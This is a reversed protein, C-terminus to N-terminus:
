QEAEQDRITGIVETVCSEVAFDLSSCDLFNDCAILFMGGDFLVIAVVSEDKHCYDAEYYYEVNVRDGEYIEKGNKDCLGTFQGVIAPDVEYSPFFWRKNDPDDRWEVDQKRIFTHFPEPKHIGDNLDYANYITLSGYVWESNDIRKGRFKIPRM